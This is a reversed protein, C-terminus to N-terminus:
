QRSRCVFNAAEDTSGSGTYTAVMPYPCLPRTRDTKGDRVRSAAIRDPAVGKEVWQELAALMDFTATGDGGGCHNMGPVMFLRYSPAVSAPGGMAALVRDYYEVSSLASIQPDAYGHYQLLKGGSAFFPELNTEMANITGNEIQDVLSMHSDFNLTKYDWSPDKFVMHQYMQAGIGFPRAGGFTAWGLESGYALGPFITQGTRPNVLPQYMRRAAEVQPATLCTASDGATCAMVQPDFTCAKPDEIVRDTVGDLADCARLVADHIAPFKAPPIFSAEDEHVNQAVWMSFAARGTANLAPAGAVIGDFDDPVTQAAKLGQRGGASCGNFYSFQLPADYYADIIAKAKVAMEHVARYGYDVLKEANQMWPGGGGTHGTDTSATAYGRRVGAALANTDINGNWGGNGVAQFRGNWGSAPLWVEIKIDSDPTPRLTAAVRCFAPLTSFAQQNGGRGGAPPTFAGAAVPQALTVTADQLKLSSVSECTAAEAGAIGVLLTVLGFVTRSFGSVVGTRSFGSVVGTRM